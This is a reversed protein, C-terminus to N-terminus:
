WWTIVLTPHTDYFPKFGILTKLQMSIINGYTLSQEFQM